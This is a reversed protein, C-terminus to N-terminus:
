RSDSVCKKIRNYVVLGVSKSMGQFRGGCDVIYLCM